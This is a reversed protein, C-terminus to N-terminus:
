EKGLVKDLKARFIFYEYKKAKCKPKQVVFGLDLLGSKMHERVGQPAMGLEKAAQVVSVRETQM